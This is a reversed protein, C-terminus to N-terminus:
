ALGDWTKVSAIALGNRAKVSAKALGNVTKLASGAAAPNFLGGAAAWPVTTSMGTTGAFGTVNSAGALAYCLSLTFSGAGGDCQGAKYITTSPSGSASGATHTDNSAGDSAAGVALGSAPITKNNVWTATDTYDALGGGAINLTGVGSFESALFLTHSASPHSITITTISGAHTIPAYWMDCTAYLRTTRESNVYTNGLNDVVGTPTVNADCNFGTVIVNGSAVTKSSPSLVTTTHASAVSSAGGLFQVHAVAM